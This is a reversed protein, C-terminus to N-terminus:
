HLAFEARSGKAGGKAVEADLKPAVVFVRESSVQAGGALRARVAEARRGALQRLEDEDVKTQALLSAEMESRSPDKPADAARKISDDSRYVRTLLAEYEAPTIQV